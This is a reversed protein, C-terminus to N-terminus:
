TRLGDTGKGHTRPRKRASLMRASLHLVRVRLRCALVERNMPPGWLLEATDPATLLTSEQAWGLGVGSGGWVWGLNMGPM